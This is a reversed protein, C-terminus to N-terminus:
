IAATTKDNVKRVVDLTFQDWISEPNSLQPNRNRWGDVEARLFAQTNADINYGLLINNKQFVHNCIDFCSVFGLRFNGHYVM